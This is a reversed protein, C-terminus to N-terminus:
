ARFPHSQPLSQQSPIMAHLHVLEALSHAKMKDMVKARHVKITKECVKLQAAIQKNLYGKVVLDFVEKERPTLLQIRQEVASIASKQHSITKDLEIAKGVEALLENPDVPKELFNVAGQKLARVTLPITGYGTIFITVLPHHDSVLRELVELGSLGPLLLDLLLCCPHDYHKLDLFDQPTSFSEVQYDKSRLVRALSERVSNDDDVIYVKASPNTM